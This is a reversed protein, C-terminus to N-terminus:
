KKGDKEAGKEPKTEPQAFFLSLYDQAVKQAQDLGVDIMYAQVEDTTADVDAQGLGIQIVQAVSDMTWKFKADFTRGMNLYLLARQQDNFLDLLDHVEDCLERAAAFSAALKVKKGGYEVSVTRAM